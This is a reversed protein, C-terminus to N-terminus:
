NPHGFANSIRGQLFDGVRQVELWMPEAQILAAAVVFRQIVFERKQDLEESERVIVERGNMAPSVQARASQHLTDMSITLALRRETRAFEENDSYSVARISSILPQIRTTTMLKMDVTKCGRSGAVIEEQKRRYLHTISQVDHAIHHSLNM